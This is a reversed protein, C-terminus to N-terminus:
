ILHEIKWCQTNAKDSQINLIKVIIHEPLNRHTFLTDMIDPWRKKDLNKTKNRHSLRIYRIYRQCLTKLTSLGLKTKILTDWVALM